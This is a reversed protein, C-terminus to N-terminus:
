RTKMKRPSGLPAPRMARAQKAWSFCRNPSKKKAAASRALRSDIAAASTTSTSCSGAASLFFFSCDTRTQNRRNRTWAPRGIKKSPCDTAQHSSIQYSRSPHSYVPHHRNHRYTTGLLGTDCVGARAHTSILTLATSKKIHM